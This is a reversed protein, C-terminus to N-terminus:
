IRDIVVLEFHLLRNKNHIGKSVQICIWRRDPREISQDLVKIQNVRVSLGAVVADLGWNCGKLSEAFWGAAQAGIVM